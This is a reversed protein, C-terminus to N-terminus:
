SPAHSRSPWRKRRHRPHYRPPSRPIPDYPSMHSLTPNLLSPVPPPYCKTPKSIPPTHPHPTNHHSTTHQPTTTIRLHSARGIRKLILFGELLNTLAHSLQAALASDPWWHWLASRRTLAPATHGRIHSSSRVADPPLALHHLTAGRVASKAALPSLFCRRWRLM